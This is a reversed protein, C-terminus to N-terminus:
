TAREVKTLRNIVLRLVTGVLSNLSIGVLMYENKHIGVRVPRHM